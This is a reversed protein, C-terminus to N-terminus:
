KVRTLGAVSLIAVNTYIRVYKSTVTVALVFLKDYYYFM